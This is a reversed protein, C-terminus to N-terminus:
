SSIHKQHQIHLENWQQKDIGSPSNIM